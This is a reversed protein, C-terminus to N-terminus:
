ACTLIHFDSLSFSIFKCVYGDECVKAVETCTWTGNRSCTANSTMCKDEPQNCEPPPDKCIQIEKVNKLKIVAQIAGDTKNRISASLCGDGTMKRLDTKTENWLRKECNVCAKSVIIYLEIDTMNNEELLRLSPGSYGTHNEVSQTCLEQVYVTSQLQDEMCEYVSQEIIQAVRLTDNLSSCNVDWELTPDM